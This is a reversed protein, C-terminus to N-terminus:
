SDAIEHMSGRVAAYLPCSIVQSSIIFDRSTNSGPISRFFNPHLKRRLPCSQRQDDPARRCSALAVASVAALSKDIPPTIYLSDRRSNKFVETLAAQAPARAL